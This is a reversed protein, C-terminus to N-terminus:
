FGRQEKETPVYGDEVEKFGAFAVMFRKDEIHIIDGCSVSRIPLPQFDNQGYKYIEDLLNDPKDKNKEVIADTLEVERIAGNSGFAWLQVKFKKGM